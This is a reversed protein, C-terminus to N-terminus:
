RAKKFTYVEHIKGRINGSQMFYYHVDLTKTDFDFKNVAGPTETDLKSDRGRPAPDVFLNTVKTVNGDEDFWFVPDWNGFYSLGAGTNFVYGYSGLLGDLYAVSSLGQTVFSVTKPYAGSFAPNTVDVFTGVVDYVGDFKNKAGINAMLHNWNSIKADAQTITIPLIYAHGPALKITYIKVPITVERQGAPIVATMSAIDYVSDPLLEYPEYDPDAALQDANYKDLYAKDIGITVNTPKSPKEMSAYNIVIKFTAPTDAVDYSFAVPKNVNVAALPLEINDEYDGFDVYYDNNKLCSSMFFTTAVLLVVWFKIKLLQKM